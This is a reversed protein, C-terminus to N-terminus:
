FYFMSAVLKSYALFLVDISSCVAGGPKSIANQNTPYLDIETLSNDTTPTACQNAVCTQQALSGPEVGAQLM